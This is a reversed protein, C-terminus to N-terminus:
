SSPGAARGHRGRVASAGVVALAFNLPSRKVPAHEPSTGPPRVANPVSFGSRVRGPIKARILEVSWRGKLVVGNRYM